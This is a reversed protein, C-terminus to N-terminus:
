TIKEGADAQGADDILEASCTHSGIPDNATLVRAGIWNVPARDRLCNIPVVTAPMM